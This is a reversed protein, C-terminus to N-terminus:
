ERQVLHGKNLLISLLRSPTLWMSQKECGYEKSFYSALLKQPNLFDSHILSVLSLHCSMANKSFWSSVQPMNKIKIKLLDSHTDWYLGLFKPSVAPDRDSELIYSLFESNNSQFERVNMGATEFIEKSNKYKEFADIANEAGYYLNDMYKSNMLEDAVPFIKSFDRLLHM